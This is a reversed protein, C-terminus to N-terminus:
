LNNIFPVQKHRIEPNKSAKQEHLIFAAAPSAAFTCTVPQAPQELNDASHDDIRCCVATIPDPFFSLNQVSSVGSRGIERYPIVLVFASPHHKLGFEIVKRKAM